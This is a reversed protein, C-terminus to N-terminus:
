ENMKLKMEFSEEFSSIVKEVSEKNMWGSILKM